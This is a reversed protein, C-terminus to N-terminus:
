KPMPLTVYATQKSQATCVLSGLVQEGTELLVQEKQTVKLYKNDPTLCYTKVGSQACAELLPAGPFCECQIEQPIVCDEGFAAANANGGIKGGGGGGITGPGYGIIVHGPYVYDAIATSSAIVGVLVFTSFVVWGRM